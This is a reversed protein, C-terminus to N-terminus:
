IAAGDFADQNCWRKTHFSDRGDYSYNSWPAAHTSNWMQIITFSGFCYLYLTRSICLCECLVINGCLLHSFPCVLYSGWNSAVTLGEVSHLTIMGKRANRKVWPMQPVTQPVTQWPSGATCKFFLAILARFLQSVFAFLSLDISLDLANSYLCQFMKQILFTHFVFPPFSSTSLLIKHM